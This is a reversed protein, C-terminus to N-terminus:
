SGCTAHRGVYCLNTVQARRSYCLNTVQARRSYCLNTVQAQAGRAGGGREPSGMGRRRVSAAPM